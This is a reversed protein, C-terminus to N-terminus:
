ISEKNDHDNVERAQITQIINKFLPAIFFKMGYMIQNKVPMVSLNELLQKAKNETMQAQFLAQKEEHEKKLQCLDEYHIIPPKGEEINVEGIFQNNAYISCNSIKM